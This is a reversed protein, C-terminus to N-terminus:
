SSDLIPVSETPPPPHAPAPYPRALEARREDDMLWPLFPDIHQPSKSGNEACAILYLTLWHRTNICWLVLTQLISFLTAALAASWLSGSGYYNKRGTVPNRIKNEARNNDMPVEPHAVFLTLGPWHELLSQLVQQQKTQAAKSLAVPDEQQDQKDVADCNQAEAADPALIRSAEEHILQLTHKLAEHHQNFADSQQTLPREPDWHQLRLRNWHYLTGIREKWALAWGELEPFSRGAGLFDRRM